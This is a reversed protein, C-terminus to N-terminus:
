RLGTLELLEGAVKRFLSRLASQADHKFYEDLSLDVRVVQDDLDNPHCLTTPGLSELIKIMPDNHALVDCTFHHIHRQRAAKVLRDLLIGGLGRGQMEDTVVVAAEATDPRDALRIFRAVGVAHERSESPAKSPGNSPTKSPSDGLLAAGIAFHNQGDLETLYRLDAPTLQTKASFFRRYRSDPSLREWAELMLQKDDPRVPRLRVKTGDSLDVTERYDDDIRM